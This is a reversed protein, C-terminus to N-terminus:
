VAWSARLKLRQQQRDGSAGCIAGPGGPAGVFRGHSAIPLHDRDVGPVQSSGQPVQAPRRRRLEACHQWEERDKVAAAERTQWQMNEPRDAGGACLPEVHDVVYGPCAGRTRGTAPCPHSREFAARQRPDRQIRDAAAPLAVLLAIAIAALRGM